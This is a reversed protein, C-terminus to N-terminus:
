GTPRDKTELRHLAAVDALRMAERYESGTAARDLNPIEFAKYSPRYQDMVTLYAHPSLGDGL